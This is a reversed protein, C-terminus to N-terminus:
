KSLQDPGPRTASQVGTIERVLGFFGKKRASDISWDVPVSQFGDAYPEHARRYDFYGWSAHRSMAAVLNNDTQDFAYHDDENYLVPQGRYARSHRVQDVMQRIRDPRGVGNGHMLIFDAAAVVNDTPVAGGGFSTSVLLRGAPSRVKGRSRQQILRILEDARPPRLIAHYARNDCENAM